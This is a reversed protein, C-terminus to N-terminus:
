LERTNVWSHGAAFGQWGGDPGPHLPVLDEAQCWHEQKTQAEGAASMQAPNEGEAETGRTQGPTQEALQQAQCTASPKGESILRQGRTEDPLLNCM